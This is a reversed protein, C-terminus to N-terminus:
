EQWRLDEITPENLLVEYLATALKEVPKRVDIKKFWKRITPSNPHIFCHFQNATEDISSCGVFMLFNGEHIIELCWGWDEHYVDGVSVGRGPLKLKLFEALKKGFIGASWNVGETEDANSPFSPSKFEFHTKM